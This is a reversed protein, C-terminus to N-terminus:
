RSPANHRSCKSPLAALVARNLYVHVADARDNQLDSTAARFVEETVAPELKSAVARFPLSGLNKGVV